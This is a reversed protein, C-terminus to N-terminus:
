GVRELAKWENLVSGWLLVAEFTEMWKSRKKWYNGDVIEGKEPPPLQSRWSGFFFEEAAPIVEQACIRCHSDDELAFYLIAVGSRDTVQSRKNWSLDFLSRPNSSITNKLGRLSLDIAVEEVTAWSLREYRKMGNM